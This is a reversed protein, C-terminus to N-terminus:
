KIRNLWDEHDVMYVMFVAGHEDNSRYAKYGERMACLGQTRQIYWSLHGQQEFDEVVESPSIREQLLGWAEDESCEVYEMIEQMSQEDELNWPDLIQSEDIEIQYIVNDTNKRYIDCAFFMVGSFTHDKEVKKIENFATHYLKMGLRRGEVKYNIIIM